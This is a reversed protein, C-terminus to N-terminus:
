QLRGNFVDGHTRRLQVGVFATPLVRLALLRSMYLSLMSNSSELLLVGELSMRILRSLTLICLYVRWSDLFELM